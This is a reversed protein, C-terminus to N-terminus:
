QYQRAFNNVNLISYKLISISPSTYPKRNVAPGLNKSAVSPQCSNKNLTVKSFICVNATKESFYKHDNPQLPVLKIAAAFKCIWFTFYLNFYDFCLNDSNLGVKYYFFIEGNERFYTHEYLEWFNSLIVWFSSWSGRYIRKSNIRSM